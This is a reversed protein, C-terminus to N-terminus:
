SRFFEHWDELFQQKRAQVVREIERLEHGRFGTTSALAPPELWFKALADDRQVHPAEQGENSFFFFRYPERPSYDADVLLAM